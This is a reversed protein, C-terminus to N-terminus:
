RVLRAAGERRRRVVKGTVLRAVAAIGVMVVALIAFFVADEARTDDFAVDLAVVALCGAAAHWFRILRLGALAGSVIPVGLLSTLYVFGNDGGLSFGVLLTAMGAAYLWAAPARERM